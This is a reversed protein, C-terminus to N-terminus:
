QEGRFFKKVSKKFGKMDFDESLYLDLKFADGDEDEIYIDLYKSNDPSLVTVEKVRHRNIKFISM